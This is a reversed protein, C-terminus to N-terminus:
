PGQPTQSTAFLTHNHYPPPTYQPHQSQMLQPSQYAQLSRPAPNKLELSPTDHLLSPTHMLDVEQRYAAVARRSERSSQSSAPCVQHPPYTLTAKNFSVPRLTHTINFLEDCVNPYFVGSTPHDKAMEEKIGRLTVVNHEAYM